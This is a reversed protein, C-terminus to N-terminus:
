LKIKASGHSMRWLNAGRGHDSLRVYRRTSTCVIGGKTIPVAAIRKPWTSVRRCPKAVVFVNSLRTVQYRLQVLLPADRTANGNVTGTAREEFRYRKFDSLFPRLHPKGGPLGCSTRGRRSLETSVEQALSERGNRSFQTKTSLSPRHRLTFKLSFDILEELQDDV